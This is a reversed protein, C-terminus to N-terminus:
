DVALLADFGPSAFPSGDHAIALAHYDTHAAVWEVGAGGMVFGITAFADAWALQPGVVTLSGLLQPRTGRRGDWVHDGREYTGSTAVALDSAEVVLALGREAAPDRIAVRWGRDARPRGRTLLDGGVNVCWNELGADSLVRAARDTAWGKVFGAPDIMAPREPPHIRFVGHSDRELYACAALVERVETSAASPDLEGTNIRSIESTCRFTSFM